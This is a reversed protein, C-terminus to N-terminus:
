LSGRMFMGNIDTMTFTELDYLSNTSNRQRLTFDMTQTMM